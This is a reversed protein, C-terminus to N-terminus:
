NRLKNKFQKNKVLTTLVLIATALFAFAFAPVQTSEPISTPTSSVISTPTPTPIPTPLPTAKTTGIAYITGEESGLYIIGNAMSPSSGFYPSEGFYDEISYNWLKAGTFADLAWLKGYPDDCAAYVVGGVVAPTNYGTTDSTHWIEEGTKANLAWIGGSSEIYVIGNAISPAAPLSASVTTHNWLKNGSAADFAFVNGDENVAYVVGNALAPSASAGDDPIIGSSCNYKWVLAGSTANLGYVYGDDSGFYVMNGGVTPSRGIEGVASYRWIQQGDSARLAYVGDVFSCAYVVGNSIAPASIVGFPAPNNWIQTGYYANIAFVGYDGGIYVVGDVVTPSSLISIGGINFKWYCTGTDADLAYVYCNQAADYVIGGVVAASSRVAEVGFISNIDVDFKWLLSKDVTSANDASGTHQPDHMYM